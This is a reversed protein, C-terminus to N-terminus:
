KGLHNIRCQIPQVRGLGEGTEGVYDRDADLYMRQQRMFEEM